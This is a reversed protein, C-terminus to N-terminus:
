EEISDLYIDYYELCQKTWADLAEEEKKEAEKRLDETEQGAEELFLAEEEQELLKKFDEESKKREEENLSFRWDLSAERTPIEKLRHSEKKPVAKLEDIMRQEEARRLAAPDAGFLAKEKQEQYHDYGFPYYLVEEREPDFVLLADALRSLFYRDHSVFLLTGKYSAFISELTEKAPIDMNNTPEDLILFNPKTQLLAALKLRAKEGGSLSKVAKGLDEGRFLYAALLQRTEKENLGPFQDHFWDFISKESSLDAAKQDFYALDIHNGERLKGAFPQIEGALTKLFTSKGSGNPGCVGIKQGRRIRFSIEKLARDYGIKMHECQCVWKSGYHEPLIEEKHIVAEEKEPKEIKEMRELLKKRSRAFAAKKPKHKFREILDNLRQIEKQQEEYLKLDREYKRGRERRYATYNGPYRYAKGGSIEWILDATQDIFYRDHSVMLLAKPYNKLYHELWQITELDLHNTPEDLILLEPEALILGILLLKKQEGGSFEKLKKGKEEMSFGFDTFIKRYSSEEEYRERSYLYEEAKGSLLAERMMEEATKELDEKKVNQELIGMTFSRAQYIGAEPNKDNRDAELKGSILELLTTKGSGNRGVLAIKEKGKIEFSLHSLITKGGRSVSADKIEYLMIKRKARQVDKRLM